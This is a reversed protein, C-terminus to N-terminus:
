IQLTGVGGFGGRSFTVRGRGDRPLDPLGAGGGTSVPAPVGPKPSAACLM